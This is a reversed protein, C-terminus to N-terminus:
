DIIIQKKREKLDSIIMSQFRNYEQNIRLNYYTLWENISVGASSTFGSRKDKSFSYM